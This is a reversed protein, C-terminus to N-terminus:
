NSLSYENLTFNEHPLNYIYEVSNMIRFDNEAYKVIRKNIYNDKLNSDCYGYPRANDTISKYIFPANNSLPTSINTYNCNCQQNYLNNNKNTNLIKNGNATLYNRYQFNSSFKLSNFNEPKISLLNSNNNNNQM